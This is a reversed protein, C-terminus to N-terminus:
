PATSIRVETVTSGSAILERPDAGTHNLPIVVVGEPVRADATAPISITGATSALSVTDGDSVGLERVAAPNLRATAPEALPALSPCHSVLTGNDYLTRNVVLRFAYRDHPTPEPAPISIDAATSSIQGAAKDADGDAGNSGDAGGVLMGDPANRVAEGSIGKFRPVIEAIEEWIEESSAFDWEIGGRRALEAAIM